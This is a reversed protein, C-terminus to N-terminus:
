QYFLCDNVLSFVSAVPNEWHIIIGKIHQPSVDGTTTRYAYVTMTQEKSHSAM